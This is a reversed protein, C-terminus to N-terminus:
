DNLVADIMTRWCKETPRVAYGKTIMKETPERMAQIAAKAQERKIIKFHDDCEEWPIRKGWQAEKIAIACREIMEQDAM